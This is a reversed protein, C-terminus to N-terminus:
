ASAPRSAMAVSICPNIRCVATSDSSSQKILAAATIIKQAGNTIMSLNNSLRKTFQLLVDRKGRKGFALANIHIADIISGIMERCLNKVEIEVETDAIQISLQRIRLLSDHGCQNIGRRQM